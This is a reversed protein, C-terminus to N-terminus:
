TGIVFGASRGALDSARLLRVVKVLLRPCLM